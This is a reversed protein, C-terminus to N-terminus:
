NLSLNAIQSEVNGENNNGYKKIDALITKIKHIFSDIAHDMNDGSSTLYYIDPWIGNNKVVIKGSIVHYTGDVTVSDIFVRDGSCLLQEEVDIRINVNAQNECHDRYEALIKLEQEFLAEWGTVLSHIDPSEFKIRSHPGYYPEATLIWNGTEPNYQIDIRPSRWLGHQVYIDRVRYHIYESADM